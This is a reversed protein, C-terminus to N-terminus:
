NRLIRLVERADESAGFWAEHSVDDFLPALAENFSRRERATRDDDFGDVAVAGALAVIDQQHRLRRSEAERIQVCAEAKAMLATLPEGSRVKAVASEALHEKLFHEAKKRFQAFEPDAGTSLAPLLRRHPPAGVGGRHRHCDHM